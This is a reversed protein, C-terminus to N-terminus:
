GNTEYTNFRNAPILCVFIQKQWLISTSHHQLPVYMSISHIKRPIIKMVGYLSQIPHSFHTKNYSIFHNLCQFLSISLLTGIAWLIRYCVDGSGFLYTLIYKHFWIHLNVTFHHVISQNSSRWFWRRATTKYSETDIIYKGHNTGNQEWENRKVKVM